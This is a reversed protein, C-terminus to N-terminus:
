RTAEMSSSILSECTNVVQGIHDTLVAIVAAFNDNLHHEADLGLCHQRDLMDLFLVGMNHANQLRLFDAHPIPYSEDAHFRAALTNM